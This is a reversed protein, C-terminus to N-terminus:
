EQDIDAIPFELSFTSGRGIESRIDLEALHSTAVHKVIALGLGTGGIRQSRSRDVRYFRETLRPIHQESIGVGFDTVSFIGRDGRKKWEILVPGDDSYKLGNIVLNSLASHLEARDGHVYINREIDSQLERDSFATQLESATESALAGVDILETKRQTEVSEIRSLWLLDRLITEMRSAQESMNKLPRTLRPSDLEPLGELTDIYGKIVTLPTRLEHSVNAVFDQRMQELKFTESVDRVFILRDGAGFRSMEVQLCRESDSSPLIRLPTSHDEGDFYAHFEPLRILNLLPQGRDDPFRIGLLFNASENVWAINGRTDVIIAADRMSALSDQLYDLASELRSQTERNRRQLLFVNDFIRGWLGSGEPPEGEPNDLWRQVLRLHHGWYVVVALLGLSLGIFPVGLSWGVAGAAAILLLVRRAERLWANSGSM